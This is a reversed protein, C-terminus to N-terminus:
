GGSWDAPYFALIVNSGRLSSLKIWEDRKTHIGNQDAWPLEFDPAAQGVNPGGAADTAPKEDKKEQGLTLSASLALTMFIILLIRKM